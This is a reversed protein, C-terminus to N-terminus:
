LRASQFRWFMGGSFCEVHRNLTFMQVFLGLKSRAAAESTIRTVAGSSDESRM